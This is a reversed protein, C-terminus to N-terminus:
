SNYCDYKGDCLVNISHVIGTGVSKGNTILSFVENIVYTYNTFLIFMKNTSRKVAYVNCGLRSAIVYATSKDIKQTLNSDVTRMDKPFMHLEKMSKVQESKAHTSVRQFVQKIVDIVAKFELDKRSPYNSVYKEWESLMWSDCKIKDLLLLIDKLNYATNREAFTNKCALALTPYDLLNRSSVAYIDFFDRMRSNLLKRDVITQLKESMAKEIPYALVTIKGSLIIKDIEVTHPTPPSIAGAGLDIHFPVKINDLSGIFHVRLGSYEKDQMIQEVKTLTVSVGDEVGTETIEKMYKRVNSESLALNIVSFDGDRSQRELVGIYSAILIGGKLVFNQNYKSTYIREILRQVFYMQLLITHNVGTDKNLNKIRAMLQTANRITGIQSM